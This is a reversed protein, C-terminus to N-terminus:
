VPEDAEQGSRGVRVRGEVQQEETFHQRGVQRTSIVTIKSKKRVIVVGVGIFTPRTPGDAQGSEVM